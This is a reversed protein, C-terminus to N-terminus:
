KRRGSAKRRGSKGTRTKGARPRQSERWERGYQMAQVFAEDGAFAGWIDELWAKNKPPSASPTRNAKLQTVEEELAALRNEIQALTM